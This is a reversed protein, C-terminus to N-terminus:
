PSYKRRLEGLKGAERKTQKEPVNKVKNEM